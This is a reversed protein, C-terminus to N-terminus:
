SLLLLLLLCTYLDSMTGCLLEHKCAFCRMSALLACRNTFLLSIYFYLEFSLASCQLALICACCCVCATGSSHQLLSAGLDTRRVQVRYGRNVRMNGADDLWPVSCFLFGLLLVLQIHPTRQSM